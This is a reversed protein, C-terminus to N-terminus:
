DRSTGGMVINLLDDGMLNKKYAKVRAAVAANFHTTARAIKSGKAIVNFEKGETNGGPIFGVRSGELYGGGGGGMGALVAAAATSVAQNYASDHKDLVMYSVPPRTHYPSSPRLPNVGNICKDSDRVRPAPASRNGKYRSGVRNEKSVSSSSPTERKREQQSNFTEKIGSYSARRKSPDASLARYAADLDFTNRREREMPREKERIIRAKTRGHGSGGEPNSRFGDRAWDNGLNLKIDDMDDSEYGGDLIDNSDANSSCVGGESQDRVQSGHSVLDAGLGESNVSISPRRIKATQLHRESGEEEKTLDAAVESVINQICDYPLEKPWAYRPPIFRETIDSMHARASVTDAIRKSLDGNIKLILEMYRQLDDCRIKSLHNAKTVRAIQDTTISISNELRGLQKSREGSSQDNHLDTRSNRKNANTLEGELGRKTCEASHVTDHINYRDVQLSLLVGRDNSNSRQTSAILEQLTLIQLELDRRSAELQERASEIKIFSESNQMESQSRGIDQAQNQRLMEKKVDDRAKFADAREQEVIRSKAQLQRFAGIVSSASGLGLSATTVGQHNNNQDLHTHLGNTKDASHRFSNISKAAPSSSSARYNTSNDIPVSFPRNSSSPTSLDSHKQGSQNYSHRDTSFRSPEQKPNSIEDRLSKSNSFFHKRQSTIRELEKRADSYSTVASMQLIVFALQIWIV